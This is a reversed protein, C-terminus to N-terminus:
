VGCDSEVWFGIMAWVMQTNINLIRNEQLTVPNKSLVVVVFFFLGPM